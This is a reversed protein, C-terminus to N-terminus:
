YVWYTGRGLPKGIDFEDLSWRKRAAGAESSSESGRGGEVPKGREGGAMTTVTISHGGGSSTTSIIGAQKPAVVMGIQATAKNAVALPSGQSSFLTCSLQKSVCHM